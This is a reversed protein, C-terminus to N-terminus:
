ALTPTSVHRARPVWTVRMHRTRPVWAIRVLGLSVNHPFSAKRVLSLGVIHPLSAGAGIPHFGQHSSEEFCQHHAEVGGCRPAAAIGFGVLPMLLLVEKSM